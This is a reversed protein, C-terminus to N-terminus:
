PVTGLLLPGRTRHELGDILRASQRRLREKVSHDGRRHPRRLEPCIIREVVNPLVVLLGVRLQLPDPPPGVIRAAGVAGRRRRNPGNDVMPGEYAESARGHVPRQARVDRLRLAAGPCIEPSRVFEVGHLRSVAMRIESEETLRGSSQRGVDGVRREALVEDVLVLLLPPRRGGM